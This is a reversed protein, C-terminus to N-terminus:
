FFTTTEESLGYAYFKAILSELAICDFAESLNM